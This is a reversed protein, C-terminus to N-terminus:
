HLIRKAGRPRSPPLDEDDPPASMLEDIEAAAQRAHPSSAGRALGALHARYELLRLAEGDDGAARAVEAVARIATLTEAHGLMRHRRCLRWWEGAVRAAEEHDGQRRLLDVIPAASQTAHTNDPGFREMWLGQIRRRANEAGRLDGATEAAEAEDRWRAAWVADEGTLDEPEVGHIAVEGKRMGQQQAATPPEITQAVHLLQCVARLTEEPGPALTVGFSRHVGEDTWEGLIAGPGAGRDATREVTLYRISPSTLLVVHHAEPPFAPPPLTVLFALHEDGLWHAAYGLGDSPVVETARENQPPGIAAAMEAFSPDAPISEWLGTLFDQNEPNALIGLLADGEWVLGPLVRHAFLYHQVRM